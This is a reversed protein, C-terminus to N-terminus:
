TILEKIVAIGLTILSTISLVLPFGQVNAIRRGTQIAIQLTYASILIYYTLWVVAALNFYDIM